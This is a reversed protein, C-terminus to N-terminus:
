IIYDNIIVIGSIQRYTEYPRVCACVLVYCVDMRIYVCMCIYVHECECLM